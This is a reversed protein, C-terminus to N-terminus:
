LFTFDTEYLHKYPQELFKPPQGLTTYAYGSRGDHIPLQNMAEVKNGGSAPWGYTKTRVGDYLFDGGKWGRAKCMTNLISLAHESTPSYRILTNIEDQSLYDNVKPM